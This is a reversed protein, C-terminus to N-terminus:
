SQAAIRIARAMEGIVAGKQVHSRASSVPNPWSPADTFSLVEDESVAASAADVGDPAIHKGCTPGALFQGTVRDAAM